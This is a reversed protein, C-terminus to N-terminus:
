CVYNVGILFRIEGRFGIKWEKLSKGCVKVAWSLVSAAVTCLDLWFIAHLSYSLTAWSSFSFETPAVWIQSPRLWLPESRPMCFPYARNSFSISFSCSFQALSSKITSSFSAVFLIIGVHVLMINRREDQTLFTVVPSLSNRSQYVVSLSPHHHDVRDSHTAHLHWVTATILNCRRNPNRKCSSHIFFPSSSSISTAHM